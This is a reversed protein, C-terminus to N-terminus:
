KEYYIVEQKEEIVDVENAPFWGDYVGKDVMQFGFKEAQEKTGDVVFGNNLKRLILFKEGKYMAYPTYRYIGELLSLEVDKYFVGKEREVFTEDIINKNFTFIFDNGSMDATLKYESGKYKAYKGIKIKKDYKAFYVEGSYKIIEVIDGSKLM